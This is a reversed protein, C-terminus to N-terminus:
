DMILMIGSTDAVGGGAGVKNVVLANEVTDPVSLPELGWCYVVDSFTVVVVMDSLAVVSGGDAGKNDVVEEVDCDTSVGAENDVVEECNLEVTVAETEKESGFMDKWAGLLVM